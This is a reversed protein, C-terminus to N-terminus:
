LKEENKVRELNKALIKVFVCVDVFVCDGKLFLERCDMMKILELSGLRCPVAGVTESSTGASLTVHWPLRSLWLLSVDPGQALPLM